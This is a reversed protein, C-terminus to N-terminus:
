FGAHKDCVNLLPEGAVFRRINEHLIARGRARTQASAASCHPSILVSPLHWLPSDPPLPEIGTADLGAGALRGHTLADSLAAEDVINGRATNILYAEPKMLALEKEGILGRTQETLPCHLSVFDARQMLEPLGVLEVGIERAAARDVFPDFAIPPNMGFPSLLRITERAIGGLGVAGFTRGRLDKGM